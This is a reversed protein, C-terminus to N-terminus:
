ERKSLQIEKKSFELAGVSICWLCVLNKKLYHCKIDIQLFIAEKLIRILQSAYSSLLVQLVIENVGHVSQSM